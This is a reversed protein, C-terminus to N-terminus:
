ERIIKYEMHPLVFCLIGPFLGGCTKMTLFIRIAKPKIIKFHNNYSM